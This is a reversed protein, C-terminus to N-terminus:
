RDVILWADEGGVMRDAETLLVKELPTADWAGGAIFHGGSTV